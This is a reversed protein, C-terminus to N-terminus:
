GVLIKVEYEKGVLALNFLTPRSRFFKILSSNPELKKVILDANEKCQTKFQTKLKTVSVYDGKSEVTMNKIIAILIKQLVETSNISTPDPTFIKANYINSSANEKGSRPQTSAAEIPTISVDEQTVSSSSPNPNLTLNCREQLLTAVSTFKSLRETISEREAKLLEEIKQVFEEFAPIEQEMTLSYDKVSGTNRNEVQLNHNQRRVWYVTLGQNQLQNCLHTLIGDSSCIFVEKVTRYQRLISSGLAIMKADASNKGGPVHVLQYGRKYLEADQKGMTPNKWNAFAIKAQIEYKSLDALFIETNIDIKLNEADLLLISIGPARKASLKTIQQIKQIFQKFASSELWGDSLLTQLLEEATVSLKLSKDTATEAVVQKVLTLETTETVSIQPHGNSSHSEVNQESSSPELFQRRCNKCLYNQKGNRHGNKRYSTSECKPCKM